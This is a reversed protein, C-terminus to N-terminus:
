PPFRFSFSAPLILVLLSAFLNTPNIRCSSQRFTHCFCLLASSSLPFYRIDFVSYRIEFPPAPKSRIEFHLTLSKRSFAIVFVGILVLV